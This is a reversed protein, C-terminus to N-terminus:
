QNSKSHDQGNKKEFMLLKNILWEHSKYYFIEDDIIFYRSNSLIHINPDYIQNPNKGISRREIIKYKKQKLNVIQDQWPISKCYDIIINQVDICLITESM